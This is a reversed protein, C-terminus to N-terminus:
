KKSEANPLTKWNIQEGIFLDRWRNYGEKKFYNASVGCDGLSTCLNQYSQAWDKSIYADFDKTKDKGSNELCTPTCAKYCKANSWGETKKCTKICEDSPTVRWTTTGIVEQTYPVYCTVSAFECVSLPSEGTGTEEANFITGSPDWSKFGPPYKPVCTAKIEKGTDSDIMQKETGYQTRLFAVSAGTEIRCDRVNTDLCDKTNNQFACDFWRNVVCNAGGTEKNESCLKNRFHDCIEYHVKGDSCYLLYSLQGPKANEFNEIPQSCWEEGNDRLVGGTLPDSAACRLDVCIKRGFRANGVGCTSGENFDCAGYIKSGINGKGDGLDVEVGQVGPVFSWYDIDDIKNADYINALNGCSDIFYVENRGSVCTTKKTRHCITGLEPATCLYGEHFEGAMTITESEKKGVLKGGLSSFFGEEEDKASKVIQCNERTTFICDRGENTEYVCAGEDKPGALARCTFIDTIDQRFTAKVNYDKGLVDCRAREVLSAEDGLLCCGVQCQAVEDKPQNYFVGGEKPNCTAQEGPLCGGNITDVCTGPSCYTTAKCSHRECKYTQGTEPNIGTDCESQPVDQCWFGDITKEACYSVEQSKVLGFLFIIILIFIGVLLFQKTKTSNKNAM